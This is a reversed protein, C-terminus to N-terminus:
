EIIIKTAPTHTGTKAIRFAPRPLSNLEGAAAQMTKHTTAKKVLVSTNTKVPGAAM